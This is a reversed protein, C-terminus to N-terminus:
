ENVIVSKTLKTSKGSVYDNVIVIFKYNGIQEHPEVILKVYDVSLGIAGEDPSPKDFWVESEPIEAYVKGDPQIITVQQTLRCNGKDTTSCSKFVVFASIIEGKNMKGSYPFHVGESPLEWNKLAKESDNTIVLEACFGPTCKRYEANPLPEKNPGIFSALMMDPLLLLALLIFKINM